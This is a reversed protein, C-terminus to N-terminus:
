NQITTLINGYFYLYGGSYCWQERSGYANTTTNIRNPKGWALKAQEKTMGIFVSGSMIHDITDKSWNPYKKELNDRKKKLNNTKQQKAKALAMKQDKVDKEKVARFHQEKEAESKYMEKVYYLGCTWYDTAYEICAAIPILKNDGSVKCYNKINYIKNYHSFNRNVEELNSNFVIVFLEPNLRNDELLFTKYDKYDNFLSYECIRETSSYASTSLMLVMIMITIIIRKM